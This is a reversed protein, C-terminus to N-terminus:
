MTVRIAPYRNTSKNMNLTTRRGYTGNPTQAMVGFVGVYDVFEIKSDPYKVQAEHATLEYVGNPAMSSEGTEIKISYPETNIFLYEKAQPPNLIDAQIGDAFLVHGSKYRGTKVPSHMDLQSSIFTLVDNDVLFEFIIVDALSKVKELTDLKGDVYTKVDVIRNLIREDILKAATETELAYDIFESVQGAVSLTKDIWSSYDDVGLAM